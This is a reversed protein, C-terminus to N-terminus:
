EVVPNGSDPSLPPVNPSPQMPIPANVAGDTVSGSRLAGILALITTNLVFIVTLVVTAKTLVNGVQAGFIAEGMGGGFVTGMGQGKTRQILIVGILLLSCIIEITILFFNLVGM